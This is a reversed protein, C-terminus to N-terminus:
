PASMQVVHDKLPQTPRNNGSYIDTFSQIQSASMQVPTSLVSWIVGESCKPTTLSGTYRSVTLDSPLLTAANIMTGTATSEATEEAPLHDWVPAFADNEEGLEIFVAVVAYEETENNQHVLHM